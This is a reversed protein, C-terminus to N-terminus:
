GGARVRAVIDRYAATILAELASGNIAVGPRIKVHRMSKGTGELLDAPDPLAFGHFFGVNVHARFANVYAFPADGVCATPCGDHMLERVDSGCQRMLAFWTRAISGLGSPQADFWRDIAPEREVAGNFRLIASV